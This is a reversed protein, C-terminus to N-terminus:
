FSQSRSLCHNPEYRYDWENDFSWLQLGGVQQDWNLVNYVIQSGDPSWSPERLGTLNFSKHTKDVSSYSIGELDGAKILYGINTSNAIYHQGVKLNSDSVHKIINKGTAVDVSYIQSSVIEQETSVGHAYYTNERTMNNYILRKGDPSWQPTGLAYGHQHLIKRFGSGDPRVVYIGLNQTHEWGVSTFITM